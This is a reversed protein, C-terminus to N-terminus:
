RSSPWQKTYDTSKGIPFIVAGTVVFILTFIAGIWQAM